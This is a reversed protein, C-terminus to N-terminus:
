LCIGQGHDLILKGGEISSIRAHYGLNQACYDYLVDSQLRRKFDEITPSFGTEFIQFSLYTVCTKTIDTHANPFLREWTREFYEQIIYHVLRIIDSEEDIVVLGVC